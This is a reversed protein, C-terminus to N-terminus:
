AELTVKTDNLREVILEKLFFDFYRSIFVKKSVALCRLHHFFGSAVLEPIRRSFNEVWASLSNYIRCSIFFLFFTLMFTRSLFCRTISRSICCFSDLHVDRACREETEEAFAFPFRRVPIAVGVVVGVVSTDNSDVHCRRNVTKNNNFHLM